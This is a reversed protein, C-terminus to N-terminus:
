AAKSEGQVSRPQFRATDLALTVTNVMANRGASWIDGTGTMEFGCRDLVKLSAPNDVAASAVIRKMGSSAIAHDLVARVAERAYGKGWHPRAIWYGLEWEGQCLGVGVCGMLRERHVTFVQRGDSRDQCKGLWEEADIRDYPFPVTRLNRSIAQDGLWHTISDLDVELPPRLTLRSTILIDM